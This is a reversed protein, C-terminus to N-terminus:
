HASPRSQMEAEPVTVPGAASAAPRNRMNRAFSLKGACSQESFRRQFVLNNRMGSGPPAASNLDPRIGKSLVSSGHADIVIPIGVDIQDLALLDDDDAVAALAVGM